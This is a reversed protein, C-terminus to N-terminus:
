RKKEQREFGYFTPHTLKGDCLYEIKGDDATKAIHDLTKRTYEWSGPICVGLSTVKVDHVGRKRLAEELEGEFFNQNSCVIDAIDYSSIIGVDAQSGYKVYADALLDMAGTFLKNPDGMFYGGFSDGTFYDGLTREEQIGYKVVIIKKM